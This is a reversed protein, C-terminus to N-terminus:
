GPLRYKRQRRGDAYAHDGDGDTVTVSVQVNKLGSTPEDHAADTSGPIPNKLSVYQALSINGDQGIAIAFAAPDTGTNTVDTGVDAGDYRGVILAEKRSCSSKM